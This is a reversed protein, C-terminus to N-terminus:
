KAPHDEEGRADRTEFADEEVKAVSGALYEGQSAVYDKGGEDGYRHWEPALVGRGFRCGVLLVLVVQFFLPVVGELHLMRLVLVLLLARV